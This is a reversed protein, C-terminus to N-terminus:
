GRRQPANPAPLGAAGHERVLPSRGVTDCTCRLSNRLTSLPADQRILREAHQIPAECKIWGVASKNSHPSTEGSKFRLCTQASWFVVGVPQCSIRGFLNLGPPNIPPGM